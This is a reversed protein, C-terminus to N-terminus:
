WRLLLNNNNNAWFEIAKNDRAFRTRAKL